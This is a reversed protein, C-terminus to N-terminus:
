KGGDVLGWSYTHTHTHLIYVHTCIHFYAPRPCPLALVDAEEFFFDPLMLPLPIPPPPPSAVGGPVREQRQRKCRRRGAEIAGGVHGACAKRHLNHIHMRAPYPRTNEYETYIIFINSPYLAPPPTLPLPTANKLV